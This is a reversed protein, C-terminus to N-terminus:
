ACSLSLEGAFYRREVVTSRVDRLPLPGMKNGNVNLEETRIESTM